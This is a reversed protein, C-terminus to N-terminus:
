KKLAPCESIAAPMFAEEGPFKKVLTLLDTPSKM